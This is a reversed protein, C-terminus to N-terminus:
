VGFRDAPDFVRWGERAAKEFSSAVEEVSRIQEWRAKTIRWTVGSCDFRHWCGDEDDYPYGTERKEEENIHKGPLFGFVEPFGVQDAIFLDGENCSKLIRAWLAKTMRGKVVLSGRFHYNAGDTYEYNIRTNM